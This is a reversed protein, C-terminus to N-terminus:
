PKRGRGNAVESAEEAGVVPSLALYTLVPALKPLEAPQGSRITEFLIGLIAGVTAEVVLEPVAAAGTIAPTLLTRVIEVGTADRLAIAEPGASYVEVMRLRAFAPEAAFFGCIEEFGVRVAQPSEGLRRVAPLAAAQLQAGSSALAAALAEAKGDFYDYFTTQSVSAAAAIDAITTAPYGKAAVAAALGRLIRQEVSYAAFPPSAAVPTVVHLRGARRLLRPPPPLSMAWDWLPAALEPLEAERRALLRTYVVQYFGGVIGRVLALPMPGRGPVEDLTARGLEIIREAAERLPEMGADGTAYAEVLCMRAALPQAAILRMFAEFAARARAMPEGDRDFRASAITITAAIIEAEAARFCGLKDDFLEYYTARSVGSIRLLDEVSTAEFGREACSVVIAALLRERQERRASARDGGRGPPARRRRLTEADGWPTPQM